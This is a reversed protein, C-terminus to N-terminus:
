EEEKQEGETEATTAVASVEENEGEHQSLLIEQAKLTEQRKKAAAFARLMRELDCRRCAM